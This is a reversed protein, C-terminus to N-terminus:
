NSPMNNELLFPNTVKRDFIQSQWMNHSQAPLRLRGRYRWLRNNGVDILDCAYTSCVGWAIYRHGIPSEVNRNHRKRTAQINEITTFDLELGNLGRPAGGIGGELWFNLGLNEADDGEYPTITGPEFVQWTYHASAKEGIRFFHGIGNVIEGDEMPHFIEYGLGTEIDILLAHGPSLAGGGVEYAFAANPAGGMFNWGVTNGIGIWDGNQFLWTGDVDTHVQGNVFDGTAPPIDFGGDPDVSGMPDNGMALYPSHYQEYPDITMWRGVQPDYSRLNFALWGTEEDKEAYQGQYAFRYELATTFHRGPLEWGFPYYDAYQRVEQLGYDGEAIVARVNGLHDSLEYHYNWAGTEFAMGVRDMGYLSVEKREPTCGGCTSSSTYIGQLGNGYVYWTSEWNSGQYVTKKVRQGDPGYDYEALLPSTPTLGDRVRRVRGNIDYELYRNQQVDSILQGKANYTYNQPDQRTLEGPVCGHEWGDGIRTLQNKGIGNTYKYNLLNLFVSQTCSTFEGYHRQTYINGNDDYRLMNRYALGFNVDGIYTPSSNPVVQGFDAQELENRYNYSYRYAFHGSYDVGAATARTKWRQGTINGAYSNAPDDVNPGPLNETNTWLANASRYDELHYHLAMSFPHRGGRDLDVEIMDRPNIAKLQGQLTYVMKQTELGEAIVKRDLSGDVQYHYQVQNQAADGVWDSQRTAASTMRGVRDFGYQHRFEDAQDKQFVVETVQGNLDYRYETVKAGLNGATQRIEWEIRGYEDYSYWIDQQDNSLQSLRGLLYRQTYGTLPLSTAPLDYQSTVQESLFTSPFTPDDVNAQLGNFPLVSSRGEEIVRSYRDYKWYRFAGVALQNADQSFRLLGDKRYYYYTEGADPSREWVLQGLSNYRYYSFANPDSNAPVKGRLYASEKPAITAILNGSLDRITFSYDFYNTSYAIDITENPNNNVIRYFGEPLTYQNTTINNPGVQSDDELNYIRYDLGVGTFNVLRDQGDLAGIHIDYFSGAAVTGDFDQFYTTNESLDASIAQAVEVGAEDTFVIVQKGDGDQSITKYYETERNTADCWQQIENNPDVISNGAMVCMPHRALLLFHVGNGAPMTFRVPERGKGMRYSNGASATRRPLGTIRSYETRIYPFDTTAQWENVNNQTSYWWGVTNPQEGAVNPDNLRPGEFDNHGYPNGTLGTFFHSKYKIGTNGTPASLTTLAARGYEDYLTETAWVRDSMVDLEQSQVPRGLEDFYGRSETLIHCIAEGEGDYTRTTIHNWNADEDAATYYNSATNEDVYGPKTGFYNQCVGGGRDFTVKVYDSQNTVHNIVLPHLDYNADANVRLLETGNFYFVFNAGERAMRLKAGVYLDELPITVDSRQWVGTQVKQYGETPDRYYMRLVRSSTNLICRAIGYDTSLHKATQWRLHLLSETGQYEIEVAGDQGRELVRDGVSQGNDSFWTPSVNATWEVHISMGAERGSATDDMFTPFLDSYGTFFIQHLLAGNHWTTFYGNAYRVQLVDGATLSQTLTAVVAGSQYVILQGPSDEYDFGYRLGGPGNLANNQAHFGMAFDGGPYVYEVYSTQFTNTIEQAIAQTGNNLEWTPWIKDYQASAVGIGLCFFWLTCLMRAM